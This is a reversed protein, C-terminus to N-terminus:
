LEGLMETLKNFIMAFCGKNIVMQNQQKEQLDNFYFYTQLRNFHLPNQHCFNNFYKVYIKLACPLAMIYWCTVNDPSASYSFTASATISAWSAKAFTFRTTLPATCIM